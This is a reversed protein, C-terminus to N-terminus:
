MFRCRLVSVHRNLFTNGHILVIILNSRGSSCRRLSWPGFSCFGQVLSTVDCICGLLPRSFDSNPWSRRLFLNKKPQIKLSIQSTAGYIELLYALACFIKSMMAMWKSKQCPSTPLGRKRHKMAATNWNVFLAQLCVCVPKFFYGHYSTGRLIKVEPLIKGHDVLWFLKMLLWQWRHKGLYVCQKDLSGAVWWQIKGWHLTSGTIGM